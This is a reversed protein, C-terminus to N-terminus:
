MLFSLNDIYENNNILLVKKGVMRLEGNERVLDYIVRGNLVDQTGRRVEALIMNARVKVSAESQSEIVVNGIIRRMRPPPRLAHAAKSKFRFVRDDIASRNDYVISLQKKPDVDDSGAPVWYLIDGESAWLAFWDDFRSEDAADAEKFLFSQIEELTAFSM